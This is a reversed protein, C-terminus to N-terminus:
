MAQAKLLRVLELIYVVEKYMQEKVKEEM